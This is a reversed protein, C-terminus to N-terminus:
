FFLKQSITANDSKALILNELWDEAGEMKIKDFYNSSHNYWICPLQM